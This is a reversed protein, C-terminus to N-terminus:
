TAGGDMEPAARGFHIMKSTKAHGGRTRKVPMFLAGVSCAASMSPRPERSGTFSCAAPGAVRELWWPSAALALRM